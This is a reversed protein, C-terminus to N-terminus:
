QAKSIRENNLASLQNRATDMILQNGIGDIFSSREGYHTFNLEDRARTMAVYLRQCDRWKEQEPLSSSPIVAKGCRSIIVLSFEFGKVAEMPSLFVVGPSITSNRKLLRAQLGAQQYDEKLKNLAKYSDGAFGCAVICIPLDDVKRKAAIYRVIFDIEEKRSEAKIVMPLASERMSYEPIPGTKESDPTAAAQGFGDILATGAQIIQRTNRYNKRFYKRNLDLIGAKKMDHDKPFVQQNPDGTLFLGDPLEPALAAIIHLEVTGLDQVEDVLVCRFQFPHDGSKLRSVFRHAELSLAAPDVFGGVDLWEEYFALAKLVRARWDAIFRIARNSRPCRKPDLYEKRGALGTASAEDCNPAFASRIWVFEGRLYESPNVKYTEKLSKIIPELTQEQEPRQYSDRWCDELNEKSRKDFTLLHKQPDYFRVIEYCLDYIPKVLIRDRIDTPCLQNLLNDILTALAENLTFVGINSSPYQEALYKARHILVSTKGSGSIGSLFVPLEFPSCAVKKQDPHLFLMWDEFNPSKLLHVIERESLERLNIVNESNIDAGVADEILAPQEDLGVGNGAFTHILAVANEVEHDRLALLVSLVTDKIEEDIAEVANLVDDDGSARTLSNLRRSDSAKLPLLDIDQDDLMELLPADADVIAQPVKQPLPLKAEIEQIRSIKKTRKDIVFQLGRNNNIWRDCDVHSGVHLFLLCGKQKISVLRYGGTLDYKVCNKIRSEGHKTLKGIEDSKGDERVWRGIISDVENAARVAVGGARRLSALSKNFNTERHILAIM